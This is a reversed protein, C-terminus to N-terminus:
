EVGFLKLIDHKKLKSADSILGKSVALERLKNLSMKKYDTKNDDSHNSALQTIPETDVPEGVECDVVDCEVAEDTEGEFKINELILEPEHQQEEKVLEEISNMMEELSNSEDDDYVTVEDDNHVTLHVTKIDSTDIIKNTDADLDDEVVFDNIDLEADANALSLNM